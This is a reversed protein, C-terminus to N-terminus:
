CKVQYKLGHAFCVGNPRADDGHFWAANRPKSQVDEQPALVCVILVIITSLCPKAHLGIIIAMLLFLNRLTKEWSGLWFWGQM